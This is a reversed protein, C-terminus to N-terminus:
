DEIYMSECYWEENSKIIKGHVEVTPYKPDKYDFDRMIGVIGDSMVVPKNKLERFMNMFFIEVLVNDLTKKRCKEIVDLAHFPSLAKKYSRQSVMADYVDSISSIRAFLSIDFDMICDPYGAGNISEHHHRAGRRITESFDTLLEYSHLSHMKMIEYESSTLKRPAQLIKSPILAKGCDHLLGVLVLNYIDVKSLGLWQGFLGNLMSVNICHRQLYEDVPALANILSLIKSSHTVEIQNTIMSSLTRMSQKSVSKTQSIDNLVKNTDKKVTDYGTTEELDQLSEVEVPLDILPIKRKIVKLNNNSQTAEPLTNNGDSYSRPSEQRKKGTGYGSYLSDVTRIGQIITVSKNLETGSRILSRSNVAM